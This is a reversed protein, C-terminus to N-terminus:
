TADDDRQPDSPGGARVRMHLLYEVNGAPGTIPSEIVGRVEFGHGRAFSAVTKVAMARAEPDRVVGGKGIRERGVEFQPKVLAV